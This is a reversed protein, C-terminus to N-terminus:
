KKDREYIAQRLYVCLDLAEQYADILCDRGNFGQLPVKYKRRGEQDRDVFDKMVLGWVAPHGNAQPPDQEVVRENVEEQARARAAQPAPKTPTPISGTGKCTGCTTDEHTSPNHGMKRGNCSPCVITPTTM